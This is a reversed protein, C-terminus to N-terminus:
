VSQWRSHANVGEEQQAGNPPVMMMLACRAKMVSHMPTSTFYVCVIFAVVSASDRTNQLLKYLNRCRVNTKWTQIYSNGVDATCRIYASQM